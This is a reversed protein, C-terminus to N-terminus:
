EKEQDLIHQSILRYIAAVDPQSDLFAMHRDLTHLDGRAAPGTQAREAGMAMYKSLTEAVLPHLWEPKLKHRILMDEAIHLLHNTFNSAFVAAVHLALRQAENLPHVIKSIARAIALLQQETAESDGEVFMPVETFQIKRHRSFTQLPYLVGTARAAAYDLVRRPTSGSTHILLADDPLVLERAVPEIADDAVAIIFIQSPSGSFDTSLVVEAQYLREALQHAHDASRSYVERVVYGANDLAPALHWALNGAGIFTINHAM